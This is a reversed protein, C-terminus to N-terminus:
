RKTGVPAVIVPGEKLAEKLAQSTANDEPIPGMEELLKKKREAEALADAQAKKAAARYPSDPKNSMIDKLTLARITARIPSEIFAPKEPQEEWWLVKIPVIDQENSM